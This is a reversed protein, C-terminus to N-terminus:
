EKGAKQGELNLDKKDPFCSLLFFVLFPVFTERSFLSKVVLFAFHRSFVSGRGEHEEHAEHYISNRSGRRACAASRAPIFFSM